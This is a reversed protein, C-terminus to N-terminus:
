LPQTAHRRGKIPLQVRTQIALPRTRRAACERFRSQETLLKVQASLFCAAVECRLIDDGLHVLQTAPFARRFSLIEADLFGGEPGLVILVTGEHQLIPSELVSTPELTTQDEQGEVRYPHALLILSENADEGRLIEEMTKWSAGIIVSPM